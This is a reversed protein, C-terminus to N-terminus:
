DANNENKNGEKIVEYIMDKDKSKWHNKCALNKANNTIDLRLQEDSLIKIIGKELDEQRTIVFAANNDILYEISAVDSPGYALICAGSALCDAIKTSVSYKVRERIDNDFSETHIVLLSSKIIKEVEKSSVSGHFVVGNEITLDKLIEPQSESSYVDIHSPINPLQAKKLAQGISVLQIHRNYGLNGLYVIKNEKKESSVSISYPNHITYCPKKFYISYDKTMKDCITFICKSYDITRKVYNMFLRHQLKGLISKHNINYFYYDDMCSIYLPINRKKAIKLAIKYSFSYDGSAFFVAEPKFEDIWNNLKKNNWNSLNWISNRLLYILPTRKRAKQYLKAKVGSDTRSTKLDSKIDNIGFSRGCKTRLLISKLADTDTINYYKFCKETVPVESHFYLQALKDSEWNEFYGLLTKGMNETLSFVNHSIILLRM